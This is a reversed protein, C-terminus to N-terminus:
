EHEVDPPTFQDDDRNDRQNDDARLFQRAHQAHDPLARL